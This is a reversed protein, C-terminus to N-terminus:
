HARGAVIDDLIIECLLTLLLVVLPRADGGQPAASFVIGIDHHLDGSAPRLVAGEEEEAPASVSYCVRSANPIGEVVFLEVM